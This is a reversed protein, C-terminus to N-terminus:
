TILKVISPLITDDAFHSFSFNPEHELSFDDSNLTDFLVQQSDPLFVDYM